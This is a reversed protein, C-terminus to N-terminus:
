KEYREQILENILDSFEDGSPLFNLKSYIEKLEEAFEKVAQKVNGFGKSQLYRALLESASDSKIEEGFVSSIEDLDSTYYLKYSDKKDSKIFAILYGFGVLFLLGHIAVMVAFIIEGATM